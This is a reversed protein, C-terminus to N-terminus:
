ATVRAHVTGVRRNRAWVECDTSAQVRGAVLLADGDTRAEIERSEILKGAMDFLHIRYQSMEAERSPIFARVSRAAPGM